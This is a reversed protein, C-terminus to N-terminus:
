FYSAASFCDRSDWVTSFQHQQKILVSTCVPALHEACFTVLWSNLGTRTVLQDVGISTVKGPVLPGMSPSLILHTNPLPLSASPLDTHIYM